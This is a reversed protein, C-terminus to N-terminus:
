IELHRTQPDSLEFNIPVMYSVRVTKGQLIGPKWRPMSEVLRIAEIQLAVPPRLGNRNPLVHVNSVSGDKEIIFRVFVKGEEGNVLSYKPYRVNEKIWDVVSGKPFKPIEDLFIQIDDNDSQLWRLVIKKAERIDKTAIELPHRAPATIILTDSSNAKLKFTGKANTKTEHKTGKVKVIAGKVVQESEDVVQATFTEEQVQRVVPFSAAHLVSPIVFASGWFLAFVLIAHKCDYKMTQRKLYYM